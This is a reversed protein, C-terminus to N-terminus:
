IDDMEVDADMLGLNKTKKNKKKPTKKKKKDVINEDNVTIETASQEIELNTEIQKKKKNKKSKKKKETSTEAADMVVDDDTTTTTTTTNAAEAKRKDKKKKNKGVHTFGESDTTSGKNGKLNNKSASVYQAKLTDFVADKQEDTM